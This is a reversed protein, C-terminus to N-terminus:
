KILLPIHAVPHLNSSIFYSLISPIHPQPTPLIFYLKGQWRSSHTMAPPSGPDTQPFIISSPSVVAPVHTQSSTHSPFTIAWELGLPCAQRRHKEHRQKRKKGERRQVKKIEGRNWKEKEKVDVKRCRSTAEHEMAVKGWLVGYVVEEMEKKKRWVGSVRKALMVKGSFWDSGVGNGIDKYRLREPMRRPSISGQLHSQYTTGFCGLLTFIDNVTHSLKFYHM